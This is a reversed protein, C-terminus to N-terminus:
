GARLPAGVSKAYCSRVAIARANRKRSGPRRSRSSRPTFRGCSKWRPGVAFPDGWRDVLPSWSHFFFVLVASVQTHILSTHLEDAGATGAGQRSVRRAGHRPEFAAKGGAHDADERPRTQTCAALQGDGGGEERAGAGLTFGASLRTSREIRFHPLACATHFPGLGSPRPNAVQARLENVLSTEEVSPKAAQILSSLANRPHKGAAAAELDKM